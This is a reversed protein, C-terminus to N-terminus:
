TGKRRRDSPSNAPALTQMLRAASERIKMEGREWRAVSNEAVGVLEALQRQTLGLRMRIQRVATRDRHRGYTAYPDTDVSCSQTWRRLDELRVRKYKGFKIAPLDGSRILGYVYQKPVKLWAAIETATVLQDSPTAGSPSRQTSLAMLRAMARAHLAATHTAFILLAESALGDVVEIPPLMAGTESAAAAPSSLAHSM